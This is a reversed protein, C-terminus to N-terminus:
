GWVQSSNNADALPSKEFTVNEGFHVVKRTWQGILDTNFIYDPGDTKIRNSCKSKINHLSNSSSLSFFLSVASPWKLSGQLSDFIRSNTM